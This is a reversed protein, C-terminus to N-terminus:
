THGPLKQIIPFYRVILEIAIPQVQAELVFIDLAETHNHQSVLEGDNRDAVNLVEVSEM